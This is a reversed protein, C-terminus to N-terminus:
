SAPLNNARLVKGKASSQGHEEAILAISVSRLYRYM